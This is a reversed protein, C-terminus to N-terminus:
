EAMRWPDVIAVGSDEYDRANRTVLQLGHSLATAAILSDMPSLPRGLQDLQARLAGWRLMVSPDISLVRGRFRELMDDALWQGLHERRRSTPLREIGRHLEGITIVSLFLREEAQRNLWRMVNQNPAKAVFESVVCTDLLFSLLFSM